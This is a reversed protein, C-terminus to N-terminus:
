KWPIICRISQHSLSRVSLHGQGHDPVRIRIDHDGIDLHRKHVSYLQAPHEPGLHGPDTDDDEASIILKFIGTLADLQADPFIKQFGDIRLVEPLGQVLYTQLQLLLLFLPLM